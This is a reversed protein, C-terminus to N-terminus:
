FTRAILASRLHLQGNPEYLNFGTLQWIRRCRNDITNAHVHLQRATLRRSLKNSVHVQLTHLLEPYEDLPDLTSRLRELAPGPRTLQYELALDEFHYVGGTLKLRNIIELIDRARQAAEPIEGTSSNVVAARIDVQGARSLQAILEKPNEGMPHGVPVLLIGGQIRLLAVTRDGCLRALEGQVRRLKRHAAAQGSTTMISERRHAPIDLALICYASALAIGCERAVRHTSRGNLLASALTRKAGNRQDAVAHLEGIYAQAVTATICHFIEIFRRSVDLPCAADETTVHVMILEFAFILGANVTRHIADLPMGERAYEATARQLQESKQMHDEGDLMSATIGVCLNTITTLDGDVADGPVARLRAASDIFYSVIKHPLSRVSRLPPPASCESIVPNHGGLEHCHIAARTTMLAAKGLMGAFADSSM